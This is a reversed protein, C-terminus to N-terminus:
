IKTLNGADLASVQQLQEDVLSIKNLLQCSYLKWGPCKRYLGYVIIEKNRMFMTKQNTEQKLLTQQQQQKKIAKIENEMM